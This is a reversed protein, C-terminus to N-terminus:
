YLDDPHSLLRVEFLKEYLGVIKPKFVDPRTQQRLPSDMPYIDRNNRCHVVPM